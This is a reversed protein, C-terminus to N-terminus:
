DTVKNLCKKAKYWCSATYDDRDFIEYYVCGKEILSRLDEIILKKSCKDIIFAYDPLRYLRQKDAWPVM